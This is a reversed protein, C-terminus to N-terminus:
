PNPIDWPYCWAGGDGQNLGPFTPYPGGAQGKIAKVHGDAFLFNAMDTHRWAVQDGLTEATAYWNWDTVNVNDKECLMPTAAPAPLAALAKPPWAADALGNGGVTRTLAYSRWITGQYLGNTVRHSRSDSPCQILQQSKMYPQIAWDWTADTGNVQFNQFWSPYREDYDQTYQMFALGLQKLNSQCSSQRAKERAKAFVPFLIAALIAIIAIVVLLEILTFARRSKM